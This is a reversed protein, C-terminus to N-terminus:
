RVIKINPGKPKPQPQEQTAAVCEYQPWKPLREDLNVERWKPHGNADLWAKNEHIIKAVKAVNQCQEGAYSFTILVAKVAVTKVDSEQWKYTGAPIVATLYSDLAKDDVGILQFKDDATTSESFLTAPAGAVYFMADIEGKRLADLAEKGGLFVEKSPTVGTQFFITKATLYTGSRQPGIAVRKGHLDQLTKLSLDGLVHVEEKYLPYVAALKAAITKLEVDDSIDRIYDLVDSQVIGLQVGRKRRVDFVNQISGASEFVQLSIHSPEAIKKIDEGIKIYTGTVNGTVIGMQPAASLSMALVIVALPLKM